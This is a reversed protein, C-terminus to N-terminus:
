GLHAHDNWTLMHWEDAAKSPDDAGLRIVTIGTNRTILTHELKNLDGPMFADQLLVLGVVVRCFFGHTVVFINEEPRERLFKLADVARDRIIEFNEGDEYQEGIM